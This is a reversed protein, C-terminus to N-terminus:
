EKFILALVLYRDVVVVAGRSSLPNTRRDILQIYFSAAVLAWSNLFCIALRALSRKIGETSAYVFLGNFYHTASYSLLLLPAHLKIVAPPLAGFLTEQLAGARGPLRIRGAAWRHRKNQNEFAISLRAKSQGRRCARGEVRILPNILHVLTM